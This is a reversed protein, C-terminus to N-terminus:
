LRVALLPSPVVHQLAQSFIGDDSGGPWGSLSSSRRRFISDQANRTRTAESEGCGHVIPLMGCAPDETSCVSALILIETPGGLESTYALWYLTEWM